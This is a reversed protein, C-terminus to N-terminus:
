IGRRRKYFLLQIIIALIITFLTSFLSKNLVSLFAGTGWQDAIFFALSFAFVLPVSYSLFWVLGMDALTPNTSEDYGGNPKLVKIWHPRLFGLLTAAAAHIGLTDYFVDISLGIGFSILILPFHQIQIPFSLISLLYLFCFAVGFLALNKLFLIQILALILVLLTYTILNKFNM